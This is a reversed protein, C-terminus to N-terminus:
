NKALAEARAAVVQEALRGTLEQLRDFEWSFFGIGMTASRLEIILDHMEAQPIQAKVEDWGTWGPKADFGLIQGRRGSVIRQVNSTFDSPVSVAVDLIPELLVPDCKPLGENMAQRGAMRFAQDSSDVSHHQGDNLEVAVDVVPFGLPGRGLHEKVGNEVSPIFQRPIAGGVVKNTFEFGAGRPQPKIEVVVDGFQGHGGSQKKHRAHQEIRKRITEKYPVQPRRASVGINYKSKLKDAAIQLHIEGQGWLLHEGTDQNHEVTVSPDEEILKAIGTSMKVEDGRDEAVIAMNFLADLPDPWPSMDAPRTGSPTLTDGTKVDEMRGLAVVAGPAAKAIKEQGLGLMKFMGGVRTGNLTMGDAIEGALVRAMSLKGARPLNYTKFVQAVPEGDGVGLRAALADVEPTDHRLAKLLRWVGGDNEASGLLVPVVRDQQLNAKLYTYVEEKPPVTDELLQELLTDDFDALSELLEQRAEQGRDQLDDPIEILKSEEGARYEYARESILDVYGTVEEGNRIPVQRLVLPRESAAQLAEIVERVTSNAIDMKNIFVMHPIDNDDLFKLLPAAIPAKTVDPEVVVVAIDAALLANHGEQGLEVSGPCDLITWEDGLYATCAINVEVSMQRARAEDSSDGVTNGEKVSGKRNTAGTAFLVSELLTTKGSLYPGVFAACRPGSASESM